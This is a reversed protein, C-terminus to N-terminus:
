NTVPQSLPKTCQKQPKKLLHFSTLQAVNYQCCFEGKIIIIIIIIYKSYLYYTSIKFIISTTLMVKCAFSLFSVSNYKQSNIAFEVKIHQKFARTCVAFHSTPISVVSIYNSLFSPYLIVTVDIMTDCLTICQLYIFLM